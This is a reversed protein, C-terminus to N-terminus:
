KKMEEYAGKMIIFVVGWFFVFKLITTLIEM